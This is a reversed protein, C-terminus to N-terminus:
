QAMGMVWTTSPLLHQSSLGTRARAMGELPPSSPVQAPEGRSAHEPKEGLFTCSCQHLSFCIHSFEWAIYVAVSEKWETVGEM